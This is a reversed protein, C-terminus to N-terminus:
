DCAGVVRMARARMERDTLTGNASVRRGVYNRLSLTGVADEVEISAPRKRLFGSKWSRSTPAGAGSVDTLRFVGGDNELCGNVTVAAGTDPQAEIPTRVDSAGRLADRTIPDMTSREVPAIPSSAIVSPEREVAPQSAKVVTPKMTEVRGPIETGLTAAAIPLDGRAIKPTPIDERASLLAVAVVVCFIGLVIARTGAAWDVQSSERAVVPKKSRSSRAPKRARPSAKAKKVRM